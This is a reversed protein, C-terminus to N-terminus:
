AKPETDQNSAEKVYSVTNQVMHIHGLLRKRPESCVDLDHEVHGGGVIVLGHATEFDDRLFDLRPERLARELTQRPLRAHVVGNRKLGRSM